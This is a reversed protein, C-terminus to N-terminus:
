GLHIERRFIANMVVKIFIRTLRTIIKMVVGDCFHHKALSEFASEFM